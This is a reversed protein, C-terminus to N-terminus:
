HYMIIILAYQHYILAFKCVKDTATAPVKFREILLKVIAMNGIGAAYHIAQRGVQVFTIICISSITIMLRSINIYLAPILGLFNTFLDVYTHVYAYM